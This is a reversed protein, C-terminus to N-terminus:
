HLLDGDDAARDRVAVVRVIAGAHLPTDPPLALGRSDTLARSGQEVDGAADASWARVAQLATAPAAVEVRAGNVFVVIPDTM